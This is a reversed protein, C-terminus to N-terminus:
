KYDVKITDAAQLGLDTKRKLMVKAESLAITLDDKQKTLDDIEEFARKLKERLEACNQDGNRFSHQM